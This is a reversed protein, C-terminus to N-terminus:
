RRGRTQTRSAAASSADPRVLPRPTSVSPVAVLTAARGRRPAPMRSCPYVNRVKRSLAPTRPVELAQSLGREIRPRGWAFRPRYARGIRSIWLPLRTTRRDLSARTRKGSAADRLAVEPVVVRRDRGREHRVQAVPRERHLAPALAILPPENKWFCAGFPMGSQIGVRVNRVCGRSPPSRSTSKGSTLSSSASSQITCNWQMSMFAHYERTSLGCRGSKTTKSRSGGSLLRSGARRRPRGGRARAGQLLDAELAPRLGGAGAAHM